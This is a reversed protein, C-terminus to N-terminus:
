ADPNQDLVLVNCCGEGPAKSASSLGTLPSSCWLGAAFFADGEREADDDDEAELALLLFCNLLQSAQTLAGQSVGERSKLM